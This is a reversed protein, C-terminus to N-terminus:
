LRDRMTPSVTSPVVQRQITIGLWRSLTQIVRERQDLNEIKIRHNAGPQLISFSDLHSDPTIAAASWPDIGGYIYIIREGQSQLWPIVDAMTDDRFALPVNRPAFTRYTPTKVTKLLDELHDYIYPCYGFETYAQYFLPQFYTFGEDAYYYVPSVEVLHNFIDQNDADEQPITSCDSESGYQWFAFIYELVSYEFAAEPSIISFTYGKNAIHAQLLPMFQNKRSLLMRQFQQIKQRCAATGVQQLFPKFRPDDTIPMIPAVYAVTAAVDNPFFRRYFLATMGGKSTGSSLWKGAYIVKLIEKIRHQDSAAQWITLFQWDDSPVANPFYRHVLLIQNGGIMSTLEVEYNRSVGYGTTYFVMPTEEQRHSLYFRQKFTPGASDNHDVPQSIDVQFCQSFGPLTTIAIAEIGPLENLRELLSLQEEQTDCQSVVLWSLVLLAVAGIQKKGFRKRTSSM